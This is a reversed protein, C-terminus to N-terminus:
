QVPTECLLSSSRTPPLRCCSPPRRRRPWCCSSACGTPRRPSNSKTWARTMRRLTTPGLFTARASDAGAASRQWAWAHITSVSYLPGGGPWSPRRATPRTGRNGFSKSEGRSTSSGHKQQGTQTHTQTHIHERLRNGVCECLCCVGSSIPTLSPSFM